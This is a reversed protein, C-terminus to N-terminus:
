KLVCHLIPLRWLDWTLIIYCCRLLFFSSFCHLIFVSEKGFKECTFLYYSKAGGYPIWTIGMHHVHSVWTTHMHYGHSTCTIGQLTCTIGMHHVHLVWTTHKHYGHSTCTIGMYHAHSVWTIYMYYGHLTCTIGMHHVHLVWTTHM